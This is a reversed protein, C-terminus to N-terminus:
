KRVKRKNSILGLQIAGRRPMRWTKQLDDWQAGLAIAQRRTDTDNFRIAVRVLPQFRPPGHDVVLEVTTFRTNGTATDKRYRVCVLAPGYRRQLTRTGAQGPKLRKVVETADPQCIPTASGNHRGDHLREDEPGDPLPGIADPASPQPLGPPQRSIKRFLSAM